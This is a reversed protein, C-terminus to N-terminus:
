LQNYNQIFTLEFYLNNITQFRKALILNNNKFRNLKNM